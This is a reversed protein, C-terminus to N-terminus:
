NAFKNVNKDGCATEEEQFPLIHNRNRANVCFQAAAFYIYDHWLTSLSLSAAIFSKRKRIITKRNIIFTM